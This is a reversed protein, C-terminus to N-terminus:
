KVSVLKINMVQNMQNTITQIQGSGGPNGRRNMPVTIVMGMNQNMTTDIIIGLEPDFWSVGSSDGDSITINMGTPSANTDRISKITGEFELRACNRKGHLEWSKFTFDYDMVLTGMMGMPFEIQVPWTDGPQVAKPPMYQNASMLQKFYGENFMSKLPALGAPTAGAQLRNLMEDIGEIREVGNTADLFFQIKSGVIKGYIRGVPDPKGTAAKKTSDYDLM